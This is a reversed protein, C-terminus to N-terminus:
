LAASESVLSPPNWHRSPAVALDSQDRARGPPCLWAARRAWSPASTIATCIHRGISGTAQGSPSWRAEPGGGLLEPRDDHDIIVGTSICVPSSSREQPMVRALCGIADPADVLAYTRDIVPTIAGSEILWTM